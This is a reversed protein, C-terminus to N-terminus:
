KSVGNIVVEQKSDFVSYALKYKHSPTVITRKSDPDTPLTPRYGAKPQSGNPFTELQKAAKLMDDLHKQGSAYGGLHTVARLILLREATAVSDWLVKYSNNTM